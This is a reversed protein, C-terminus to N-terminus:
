RINGFGTPSAANYGNCMKSDDTSLVGTHMYISGAKCVNKVGYLNEAFEVRDPTEGGIPVSYWQRESGEKHYLFDGPTQHINGVLKRKVDENTKIALADDYKQFRNYDPYTESDGYATVPFNMLPNDRTPERYLGPINRSDTKVFGQITSGAVDKSGNYAYKKPGTFPTKYQPALQEYLGSSQFRTTDNPLPESVTSLDSPYNM